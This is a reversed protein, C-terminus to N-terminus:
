QSGCASCRLLTRYYNRTSYKMLHKPYHPLKKFMYAANGLFNTLFNQLYTLTSLTIIFHNRQHKKKQHHSDYVFCFFLAV